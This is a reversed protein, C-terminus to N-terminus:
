RLEDVRQVEGTLRDTRYLWQVSGRQVAHYEYRVQEPPRCSVYITGCIATVGVVLVLTCLGGQNRPKGDERSNM